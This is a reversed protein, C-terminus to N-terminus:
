KAASAENRESYVRTFAAGLFMIQTSYYVWVLVIVLSGAAGFPSGVAATGLYLGILYKGVVFLAATALSGVLVNKWLVRRDPLIKFIIAFLFAALSFSLFLNITQFGAVGDGFKAALWGGFGSLVASAILSVLLLFALGAIVALSLLRARFLAWIGQRFTTSVNVEWVANLSDQMEVFIGTAGVVMTVIGIITAITGRHGSQHNAFLTEVVDAGEEGVQAKVQNQIESRVSENGLVPGAIAVVFILLPSLSLCVYFSLAAGLRPANVRIFLLVTDRLLEYVSALRRLM